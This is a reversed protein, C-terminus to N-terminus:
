DSIDHGCLDAIRYLMWFILPSVLMTIISTMGIEEVVGNDLNLSGRVFSCLLFEAFLYLFIAVGTLGASLYWKGDQFLPRIGQMLFGMFAYLIISYGFKPSDSTPQFVSPDLDPTLIIYQADWLFGGLFALILMGATPVTASGCLVVLPLLLIRADYWPTIPPLFQQVICSLLLLGILSITYSLM